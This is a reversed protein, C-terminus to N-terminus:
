LYLSKEKKKKEGSFLMYKACFRKHRHKKEKVPVVGNGYSCIDDVFNVPDFFNLMVRKKKKM